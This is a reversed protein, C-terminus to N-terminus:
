DNSGSKSKGWAGGLVLLVILANLAQGGITGYVGWRYIMWIGATFMAAGAALNAVFIPRSIRAAKFATQLPWYAYMLAYFVAMLRIGDSFALYTEGYLAGLLQSPFLVALTLLGLIPVGTTAYALHVLRALATQGQEDYAKAARPTLFTDTARLLMFVPAVLNQLARYAGAAAFSVMGATLVPYFEVALWNAISGGMVWRGFDWNRRWVQRLNEFELTWYRRTQWLGPLLAVLAGLAIAQLSAAGDLQERRMLWIMIGLRFANSLATNLAAALVRGRTYLMRRVYEQLQWWLFAPGLALLTPGAVDNGLRLVMWGALSVGLASVVALLVQILTTSTAYRRFANEDQAAGFTNLPQICLGEQISRVLRLSTFGVGYIGLETPSASRALFLTALFNAVSILGQDVAALYGARAGGGSFLLVLNRAPPPLWKLYRAPWSEPVSAPASEPSTM